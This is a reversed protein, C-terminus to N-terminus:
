GDDESFCHVKWIGVSVLGIPPEVSRRWYRTGEIVVYEFGKVTAYDEDLITLVIKSPVVVGFGELKGTGDQYQIACPVKHTVRPNPTRVVTGTPDFPVGDDDLLSDVSTSTQPMYFTPQDAANVPLGVAFALRLGERVGDADFGALLPDDAM